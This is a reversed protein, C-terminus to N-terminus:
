LCTSRPRRASRHTGRDIAAMTASWLKSSPEGNCPRGDVRTGIMAKDTM